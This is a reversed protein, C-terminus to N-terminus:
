INATVKSSDNAFAIPNCVFVNLVIREINVATIITKPIRIIPVSKIELIIIKGASVDIFSNLLKLFTTQDEAIM